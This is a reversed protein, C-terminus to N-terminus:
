FRWRAVPSIAGGSARGGMLLEGPAVRQHWAVGNRNQAKAETLLVPGDARLAELWLASGRFRLLSVGDEDSALSYPGSWVDYTSWLTWGADDWSYLADGNEGAGVIWVHEDDLALTRAGLIGSPLPVQQWQEGTWRFLPGSLAWVGGSSVAIDRVEAGASLPMVEVTWTAGDWHASAGGATVAWVDSDGTGAMAVFTSGLFTEWREVGGGDPHRELAGDVRAVWTTAASRFGATVGEMVIETLAGRARVVAADCVLLGSASAMGSVPRCDPQAGVQFRPVRDSGALLYATSADWALVTGDPAVAVNKPFALVEAQEGDFHLAFADCFGAYVDDDDTGTIFYKGTTCSGGGIAALTVWGEVADHRILSGPIIAYVRGTPSVWIALTELPADHAPLARWELGTWCFIGPGSALCPRGDRDLVFASVGYFSWISPVPWGEWRSGDFHRIEYTGDSRALVFAENHGAAVVSVLTPASPLTTGPALGSWSNGDFHAVGYPGALAWIDDAAAASIADFSTFLGEAPSGFPTLAGDRLRLAIPGDILWQESASIAVAEQIRNIYAPAVQVAWGDAPCPQDAGLPGDGCPPETIEPGTADTTEEPGTADSTEEPGTADNTEESGTADTAVEEDPLETDDADLADVQANSEAGCAAIALAFACASASTLTPGPTSRPEFLESSPATIQRDM